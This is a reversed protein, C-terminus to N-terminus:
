KKGHIQDLISQAAQQAKDADQKAKIYSGNQLYNEATQLSESASQMEGKLAEYQKQSIHKFADKANSVSDMAANVADNADKQAQKKGEVAEQQATEAAKKLENALQEVKDYTRKTLQTDLAASKALAAQLADPAYTAAEAAQAEALANRAATIQKEPPHACAALVILSVILVAGFAKRM